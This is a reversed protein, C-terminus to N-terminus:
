LLATVRYVEEMTTIGRLVKLVGDQKMTIMGDAVAQNFIDTSSAKEITLQQVKETLRLLEFIGIRGKYGTGNCVTCGQGVLMKRDEIKYLLDQRYQDPIKDFERKIDDFIPQPMEIEKKCASCIKRVLRQAVVTHLSSSILFPEIGMDILRPIAGAADNTHLTSLVLHGTLASQIAMEATERDRIEGVMIINPDQRLISRLGEAFSYGIYPKVQSQNVGSMQYEIPDELTVINVAEKNIRSIAAYLTTSKGSGTPGTVLLVGHPIKIAELFQDYSKGYLGIDEIQVIGGSKDLIRMVVKEGDITPFTSIRLDIARDGFMVDIRGDQPIRQEDIKLKALIKIRAVLVTHDKRPFDALHNLIGDIRYRIRSDQKDLPEIHIDSAGIAVGFKIIAAVIRPITSNKIIDQLQEKTTVEESVLTAIQSAEFLEQDTKKETSTALPLEKKEEPKVEGSVKQKEVMVPNKYQQWAKELGEITSVYPDINIHNKNKIFELAKRTVPDWPKSLAVKMMQDGDSEFVVINYKRSIDEPFKSLVLFPIKTEALSIYPLSFVESAAKALDEQKIAQMALLADELFAGEKAALEKARTITEATVLGKELLLDAITKLQNNPNDM